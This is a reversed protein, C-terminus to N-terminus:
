TDGVRPQPMGVDLLRYLTGMNSFHSLLQDLLFEGSAKAENGIIQALLDILLAFQETYSPVFYDLGSALAESHICDTTFLCYGPCPLPFRSLIQVMRHTETQHPQDNLIFHKLLGGLRAVLSDPGSNPLGVDEPEIRAYLTLHGNVRSAFSPRLHSSSVFRAANLAKLNLSALHCVRTLSSM